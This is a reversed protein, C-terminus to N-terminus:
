VGKEGVLARVEAALAKLAEHTVLRHAALPTGAEAGVAFLAVDVRVADLGVSEVM